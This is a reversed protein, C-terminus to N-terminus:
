SLSFYTLAVSTGEISQAMTFDRDNDSDGCTAQLYLGTSFGPWRMVRLRWNRWKKPLGRVGLRTVGVVAVAVAVATVM